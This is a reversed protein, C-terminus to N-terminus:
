QGPGSSPALVRCGIAAASPFDMCQKVGRRSSSHFQARSGQPTRLDAMQMTDAQEWQWPTHAAPGKYSVLSVSNVTCAM